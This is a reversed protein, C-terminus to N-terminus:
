SACTTSAKQLQLGSGSAVGRQPTFSHMLALGAALGFPAWFIRVGARTM